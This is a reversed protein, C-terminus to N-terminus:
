AKALYHSDYGFALPHTNDMDLKIINGYMTNYTKVNEIVFKKDREKLKEKEM